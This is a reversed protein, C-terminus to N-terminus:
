KQQASADKLALPKEYVWQPLISIWASVIPCVSICGTAGGALVPHELGCHICHWYGIESGAPAIVRPKQVLELRLQELLGSKVHEASVNRDELKEESVFVLRGKLDGQQIRAKYSDRDFDFEPGIWSLNLEQFVQEFIFRAKDENAKSKTM